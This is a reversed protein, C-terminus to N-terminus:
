HYMAQFSTHIQNYDALESPSNIVRMYLLRSIIKLVIMHRGDAHTHTHTHENTSGQAFVITTACKSKEGNM